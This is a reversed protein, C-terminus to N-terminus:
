YELKEEKIKYYSLSSKANVVILEMFLKSFDLEFFPFGSLKETSIESASKRVRSTM